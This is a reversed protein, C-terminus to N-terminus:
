PKLRKFDEETVSLGNVKPSDWDQAIKWTDNEKRLVVQFSGCHYSSDGAADIDLIRYVGTEYAKDGQYVRYEFAFSIHVPSPSPRSFHKRNRERYEEGQLFGWPGARLVDNTHISNFLKANNTAYAEIFPTWVQADIEESYDEKPPSQSFAMGCLLFAFIPTLFYKM